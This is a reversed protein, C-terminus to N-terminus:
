DAQEKRGEGANGPKPEKGGNRSRSLAEFDNLPVYNLSAYRTDGGEVSPMDELALIDNVSFAGMTRMKEYWAGRAAMDGRLEANMNMRVELGRAQEAGFLLKHSFEEEAQQVTPHLASVVYEIANQENSAYSQKGSQLKYLPVGYFRAIDAVAVDRSEVFQADKQSIGIQQYKFGNTLVAVRFANDAGQHIADWEKRVVDRAEKSLDSDVSLVGSPRASQAYFKQEHAQQAAATRLVQAARTLVSVGTIGDESYEKLHVIDFSRLKRKEGTRPNTAVYWLIGNEDIATQVLEPHLPLLERPKASDAARIALLYANGYQLRWAELLKKMTFPTMAENPRGSLLRTLYHDAVREKTRENMVYVPLKAFSDSRIAVAANVASIKMATTSQGDFPSEGVRFAGPDGM